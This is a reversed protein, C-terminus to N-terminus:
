SAACDIRLEIPVPALLASVIPSRRFSEEVLARLRAPPVSDAASIRVHLTLAQPLPDVPSGDPNKMAFVARLDSQSCAAIELSVLEIGEVAALMAVITATCTALSARLLWGPTVDAGDGGLSVGMDTRLQAGNAHTAVVRTGGEWRATAPADSNLGSGPRRQLVSEARRWAAAIDAM